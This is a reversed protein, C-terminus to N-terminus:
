IKIYKREYSNIEVDNEAGPKPELTGSSVFGTNPCSLSFFALCIPPRINDRGKKGRSM